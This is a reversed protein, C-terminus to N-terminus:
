AHSMERGKALVHMAAILAVLVAVPALMWPKDFIARYNELERLLGGLSPVPEAVSLGLIGLNAEGVVFAPLTTVFQAVAVPRLNPALHVAFLRPSSMGLARAELVFDRRSLSLVANRVVRAPPAWGFVALLGFTVIITQGPPTDLPLAARAAVLVCLSPLSVLLDTLGGLASDWLGGLLAAALGAIVAVLVAVAAAAPALLLSLRTGYLLRALRDRGLEDTGLPFQASPREDIHERFQEEYGHPWLWPVGASLVALAALVVAAAARSATM